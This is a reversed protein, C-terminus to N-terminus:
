QSGSELLSETLRLKERAESFDPNIELAIRFSEAAEKFLGVKGLTLGLNYYAVANEPDLDISKKFAKLAEPYSKRHDYALALNLWGDAYDPLIGTAKQFFTLASDIQGRAVLINGLEYNALGAMREPKYGYRTQATYITSLDYKEIINPPNKELITRFESEASDVKGQEKLILGKFYHGPLFEPFFLTLYDAEAYASDNEGLSRLALIENVYAEMYQPAEDVAQRAERLADGPNGELRDLVSLNNHAQASRKCKEIELNFEERARTFDLRGFFIIGRNLHASPVCPAMSTAIEYENLAKEPMGKKLYVNGLSFHSMAFNQHSVGFFDINTLLFLIVLAAGTKALRKYDRSKIKEVIEWAAASALIILFPLVPLRFRATVFFAIVTLMYTIIFYAIIHLKRDRRFLAILGILSLPSVIFFLPPMIKSISAYRRFFYLNQNNSIEYSNWFYSLKKLMLGIWPLPEEDIFTLAQRYFFSSVESPKMPQGLRGSEVKAMYECDAYQWTAGFEPIVATAGDAYRNNGIYFNIGGQSAILVLDHGVIVNRLTVPMIMILCGLTLMAFRGAIFRYQRGFVTLLWILIVPWFALYNPRTIATLGLVIGALFFTKLKASKVARLLLWILILSMLTLLSDLLLEDEFYIFVWYFVAAIGSLLAIRRNFFRDAFLFILACTLSGILHQVIRAAALSHDFVAYILGLFYAYFPARFFPGTGLLDGSAIQRAWLDHFLPDITPTDWGPFNAKIQLFYVLRILFAGAFIALAIFYRSEPKKM